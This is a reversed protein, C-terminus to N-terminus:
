AVGVINDLYVAHFGESDTFEVYDKGNRVVKNIKNVYATHMLGSQSNVWQITKKALAKRVAADPGALIAGLDGRAASISAALTTPGSGDEDDSLPSIPTTGITTAVMKTAHKRTSRKVAKALRSYDADQQAISVAASVNNLRITEGALVYLPTHGKVISANAGHWWIDITEQDGRRAFVHTVGDEHQSVKGEWGYGKVHELFRNAKDMGSKGVSTYGSRQGM